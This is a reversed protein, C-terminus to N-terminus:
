QMTAVTLINRGAPFLLMDQSTDLLQDPAATKVETRNNSHRSSTHTQGYSRM